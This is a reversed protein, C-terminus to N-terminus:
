ASDLTMRGSRLFELFNMGRYKLTQQISLLIAYERMGNTSSTAMANRIRTFERVAHEANNNNWPIGDYDLFTFLKDGIKKLRKQLAMATESCFDFESITTLFSQAATKHKSLYRARLGKEDVTEVISRLLGGFRQAIDKLEANFPNKLVDENIDRMLHILCKQQACPVSDYAAYFDSVLVGQFGSLTDELVTGERSASYVYAVSALNTFVWMYHAGGPIPARTEDVHVLHGSVIQAKISEYVPEYLKAMDSKVRQIDDKNNLNIGFLSSLNDCIKQHSMRLEVKQYIIYSCLDHGFSTRMPRGSMEARCSGCRFLRYKYGKIQRRVGSRSFRLDLVIQVKPRSQTGERTWIRSSGCRRCTQPRVDEMHVIKDIKTPAKAERREQKKAIRNIQKDSRVYVRSRQYDWYAAENIKEFDPLVGPFKGFIRSYGVELSSVNIADTNPPGGASASAALERIRKTVLEIAQCDESNYRVLREKLSADNALEWERRWWIAHSGSANYETWRFGLYQAIDKLSNTYTPFYVKSYTFSVMNISSKILQRVFDDEGLLEPYRQMMRKLFISEYSGYHILTPDDLSRLVNLCEHWICREDGPRDAWFSQEIQEGEQKYRIGILYYSSRDSMGEVDFYVETKTEGFSPTGVVHVQRKKIALAKLKPDYQSTKVIRASGSRSRRRRPRYGYSLQTITSIGKERLKRLDKESLTAILSLDDKAIASERCIPAYDCVSCHKNLALAPAEGGEIMARIRAFIAGLGAFHKDLRVVKISYEPGYCLRGQKSLLGTAREM